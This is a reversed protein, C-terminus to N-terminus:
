VTRLGVNANGKGALLEPRFWSIEQYHGSQHIVLDLGPRTASLGNIERECGSGGGPQQKEGDEKGLSRSAEDM